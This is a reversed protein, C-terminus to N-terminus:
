SFAFRPGQEEQVGFRRRLRGLVRATVHTHYLREFTPPPIRKRLLQLQKLHLDTLDLRDGLDWTYIYLNSLIKFLVVPDQVVGLQRLITDYIEARPAKWELLLFSKLLLSDSQLLLFGRDKCLDGGRATERLVGTFDGEKLSLTGRSLYLQCMWWAPHGGNSTLIKEAKRYHEWARPYRAKIGSESQLDGRFLQLCAELVPIRCSRLIRSARSLLNRARDLRELLICSRAAFLLAMANHARSFVSKQHVFFSSDLHARLTKEYDGQRLYIHAYTSNRLYRLRSIKLRKMIAEAQGALEFAKAFDGVETELRAKWFLATAKQYLSEPSSLEDLKRVAADLLVMASTVKFDFTHRLGLYLLRTGYDLTGRLIRCDQAKRLDQELSAYQNLNLFCLRRFDVMWPKWRTISSFAQDLRTRLGLVGQNFFLLRLRLLTLERALEEASVGERPKLSRLRSIAKRIWRLAQEKRDYIGALTVAPVLFDMLTEDARVSRGAGDLLHFAAQVEGRLLHRRAATLSELANASTSKM